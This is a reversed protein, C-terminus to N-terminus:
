FSVSYKFQFGNNVYNLRLGDTNYARYANKAKKRNHLGKFTVYIIDLAWIGAAVRTAIFYKNQAGNAKTYFDQIDLPVISANYDAYYKNAQLKEYIGYGVLGITSLTTLVSRADNKDVFYGGLGPILISLFANGPGRFLIKSSTITVSAKINGSLVVNDAVIDWQIAKSGDGFIKTGIDTNVSKPIITENKDTLFKLEITMEENPLSGVLNYNVVIYRDELHFDVDTIQAKTQSFCPQSFLIIAFFLIISYRM